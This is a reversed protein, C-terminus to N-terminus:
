PYDKSDTEAQELLRKVSQAALFDFLKLFAISGILLAIGTIPYHLDMPPLVEAIDMKLLNLAFAPIM